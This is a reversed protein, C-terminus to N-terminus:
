KVVGSNDMATYTDPLLLGLWPDSKPTMFLEAYVKENLKNIDKRLENNTMWALLMPHLAYENRVTDLAVSRQFKDVLSTFLSASMNANQKKMLSLSRDDLVADSKHYAAITNWAYEDTIRGLSEPGGLMM